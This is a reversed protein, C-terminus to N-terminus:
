WGGADEYGCYPGGWPEICTENWCMNCGITPPCGAGDGPYHNLDRCGVNDRCTLEVSYQEAPLLTDYDPMPYRPTRCDGYDVDTDASTDVDADADPEDSSDVEADGTDMLDVDLPDISTDAEPESAGPNSGCAPLLMLTLLGTLLYRNTM